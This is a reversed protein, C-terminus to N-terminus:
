FGYIDGCGHGLAGMINDEDDSGSNIERFFRREAIKKKAEQKRKEVESLSEKLRKECEDTFNGLLDIEMNDYPCPIGKEFEMFGWYAGDQSMKVKATSVDFDEASSYHKENIFVGRMDIYNWYLNDTEGCEFDLRYGNKISTIPMNGVLVRARCKKFDNMEVVNNPLMTIKLTYSDVFGWKGNKDIFRFFGESEPWIFVANPVLITKGHLTKLYWQISEGESDKIRETVFDDYRDRDFDSGRIFDMIDQKNKPLEYKETYSRLIHYLHSKQGFLHAYYRLTYKDMDLCNCANEIEQMTCNDSVSDIFHLIGKKEQAGQEYSLVSMAVLTGYLISLEYNSLNFEALEDFMINFLTRAAEQKPNKGM